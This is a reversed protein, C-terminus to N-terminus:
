HLQGIFHDNMYITHGSNSLEGNCFDQCSNKWGPKNVIMQDDIKDDIGATPSRWRVNRHNMFDCFYNVFSQDCAGSTFSNNKCVCKGFVDRLILRPKISYSLKGLLHFLREDGYEKMTALSLIRNPQKIWFSLVLPLEHILLIEFIQNRIIFYGVGFLVFVCQNYIGCFKVGFLSSIANSAM